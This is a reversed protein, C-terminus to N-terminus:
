TPALAEAYLAETAQAVKDWGWRARVDAAARASLRRRLEPDDLLRALAAAWADANGPEVLLGTREHEVVEALGGTASAALASRAAMAELAVIGFPEYRSPVAVVDAARLYAGLRPHQVYGMFEVREALGLEGALRELAQREGGRGLVALKFAHTAALRACAALLVDVGKERVLRGAFVILPRRLARRLAAARRGIAPSWLSAADIANYIVETRDPELGFGSVLGRQMARSVTIVREAHHVLLLEEEHILQQIPERIRGVRGLETAHITAILPRRWALALTQAARGVLWDHAHVLQVQAASWRNLAWAILRRNLADIRALFPGADPVRVRHVAVGGDRRTGTAEEGQAPCVVSVRRGRRALAHALEYVHRGLGGVAHPPFEWSLMVIEGTETRPAYPALRDPDLGPFLPHRAELATLEGPDVNAARLLSECNSLHEKARRAAYDGAQGRAMLFAWDSAQALTLERAAQALPRRREPPDTQAAAILRREAAHLKPYLDRNAGQLWLAGGGGAG